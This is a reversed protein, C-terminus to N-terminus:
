EKREQKVFKGQRLFGNGETNGADVYKDCKKGSKEGSFFFAFPFEEPPKHHSAQIKQDKSQYGQDYVVTHM